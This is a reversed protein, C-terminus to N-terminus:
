HLGETTKTTLDESTTDHGNGNTGNKNYAYRLVAQVLHDQTPDGYGNMRHAHRIAASALRVTHASAGDNLREFLYAATFVSRAPLSEVGNEDAWKGFKKCAILYQSITSPSKYEIEEVYDKLWVELRERMLEELENQNRHWEAEGALEGLEAGPEGDITSPPSVGLIGSTGDDAAATGDLLAQITKM